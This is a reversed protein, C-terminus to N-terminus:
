FSLDNRLASGVLSQWDYMQHIPAATNACRLLLLLAFPPAFRGSSRHFSNMHTAASPHHTSHRTEPHTRGRGHALQRPSIPEVVAGLAEKFVLGAKQSGANPASTSTM